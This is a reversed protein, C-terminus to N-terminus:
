TLMQSHQPLGLVGDPVNQVKDYTFLKVRHGHDVFSALCLQELWSLEKGVWLTGIEALPM